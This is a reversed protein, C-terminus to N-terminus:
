KKTNDTLVENNKTNNSGLKMQVQEKTEITTGKNKDVKLIKKFRTLLKYNNTM